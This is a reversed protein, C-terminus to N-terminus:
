KLFLLYCTFGWIVSLLHSDQMWLWLFKQTAPGNYLLQTESRVKRKKSRQQKQTILGHTPLMRQTHATSTIITNLSPFSIVLFPQKVRYTFRRLPNAPLCPRLPCLPFLFVASGSQVAPCCVSSFHILNQPTKHVQMWVSPDTWCWVFPFSDDVCVRMTGRYLRIKKLFAHLLFCHPWM